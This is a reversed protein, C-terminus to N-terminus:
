QSGWKFGGNARIIAVCEANLANWEETTYGTPPPCNYGYSANTAYAEELEKHEVEVLAGLPLGATIHDTLDAGQWSKSPPPCPKECYCYRGPPCWAPNTVSDAPRVVWYELGLSRCHEARVYADAYGAPDRDAVIVVGGKYGVLHHAQEITAKGAGGHHCFSPLGYIRAALADKEGETWIIYPTSHKRGYRVARLQFVAEKVAPDDPLESSNDPNNYAYFGRTGPRPTSYWFTKRRNGANSTTTARCKWFLVEPEDIYEPGPDLYPYRVIDSLM